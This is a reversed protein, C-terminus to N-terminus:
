SDYEGELFMREQPRGQNRIEIPKEKTLPAYAIKIDENNNQEVM